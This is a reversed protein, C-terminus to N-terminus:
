ALDCFGEHAATEFHSFAALGAGRMEIKCIVFYTCTNERGCRSGAGVRWVAEDPM